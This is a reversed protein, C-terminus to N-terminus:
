GTLMLCGVDGADAHLRCLLCHPYFAVIERKEITKYNNNDKKNNMMCGACCSYANLVFQSPLISLVQCHCITSHWKSFTGPTKM